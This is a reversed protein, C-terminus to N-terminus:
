IKEHSKTKDWTHVLDDTGKKSWTEDGGFLVCVFCFLKINEECGCLWNNKDYITKNFKRCRSKQGRGSQKKITFDPILRGLEKIQLKEELSFGSISNKLVGIKNM